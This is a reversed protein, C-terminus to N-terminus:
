SRAEEDAASEEQEVEVSAKVSADAGQKSSLLSEMKNERLFSDVDRTTPVDEVTQPRRYELSQQADLKVLVHRMIVENYKVAFVSKLEKFAEQDQPLEFRTLFYIGYDHKKVPYALRCKGWREFSIVGGKAKKVIDEIGKEVNAAEDQTIHPTALMLIEYRNM